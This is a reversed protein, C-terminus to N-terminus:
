ANGIGETLEQSIDKINAKITSIYCHMNDEIGEGTYLELLREAFEKYAESKILATFDLINFFDVEMAEVLDDIVKNLFDTDFLALSCDSKLRKVFENFYARVYQIQVEQLREIEAKQRNILDLANKILTDRCGIKDACRECESIIGQELCYELAKTIENGTLEM